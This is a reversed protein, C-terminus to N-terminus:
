SRSRAAVAKPSDIAVLTIRPVHSILARDYARAMAQHFVAQTWDEVGPDCDREIDFPNAWPNVENESDWKAYPQLDSIIWEPTVKVQKSLREVRKAMETRHTAAMQHIYAIRAFFICAFTVAIFLTRLGYRM